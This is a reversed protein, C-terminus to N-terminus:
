ANIKEEKVEEIKRKDQKKDGIYKFLAMLLGLVLFAGMGTSFLSIQISASYKELGILKM